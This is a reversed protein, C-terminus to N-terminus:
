SYYKAYVKNIANTNEELHASILERDKDDIMQGAGLKALIGPHYFRLAASLVLLEDFMDATTSPSCIDGINDSGIRVHVGAKLYELVRPISNDTPSMQRRIQRMGLAASPCCVIGINLAKLKELLANFRGESYTTPSIAHIAWIMPTGDESVPAGYKEVAEAVLETGKESDLNRQDTHFHVMKNVDKALELVRRCSEEFGIHYPYDDHDDAEPLAGIFDAFQAGKAFIDWREPQDDRFGLPTYSAIRLDIEGKRKDRIERLTELASLQVNDNTVDVMTDARVTNCQLMLDINRNVRNQLDEKEYAPGTHVDHILSHKKQLSIFSKQLPKLGVHEFYQDDLTDARDLHLHANFCGGLVKVESMLRIFWPHQERSSNM